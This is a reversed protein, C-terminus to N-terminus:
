PSSISNGLPEKAVKQNFLASTQMISCPFRLRSDEKGERQDIRRRRRARFPILCPPIKYFTPPSAEEANM